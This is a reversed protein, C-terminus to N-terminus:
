GPAVRIQNFPLTNQRSISPIYRSTERNSSTPLGGVAFPDKVLPFFRKNEKKHFYVPNTGTLHELNTRNADINTNQKVSGGFFPEMNNHCKNYVLTNKDNSYNTKYVCPEDLKGIPSFSPNPMRNRRSNFSEKSQIDTAAQLNFHKSEANKKMQNVTSSPIKTTTYHHPNVIDKELQVLKDSKTYHRQEWNTEPLDRYLVNDLFAKKYAVTSNELENNFSAESYRNHYMNKASPM